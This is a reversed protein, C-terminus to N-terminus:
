SPMFYLASKKCLRSTKGVSLGEALEIKPNKSDLTYIGDVFLRNLFEILSPYMDLFLFRKTFVSDTKVFVKKLHQEFGDESYKKSYSM